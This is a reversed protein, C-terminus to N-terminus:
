SVLLMMSTRRLEQDRTLCGQDGIHFWEIATYRDDGSRRAPGAAADRAHETLRASGYKACSARSSALARRYVSRLCDVILQASRYNVIIISLSIPSNATM